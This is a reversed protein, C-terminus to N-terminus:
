DIATLDNREQNPITFVLCTSADVLDVAEFTGSFQLAIERCVWLGFGRPDNGSEATISAELAQANLKSGSNTVTFRLVQADAYLSAKVWGREGAAKAANLMLNLMVQRTPASLVRLTSVIEAQTSVTVRYREATPQVLLAVDDLDSLKLPRDDTHAHPLLAAVTNRIQQLGREILDVTKSRTAEADGHLRLTQTANLLGGLPNSIEHGVAATMRGVAAMREASLARQEAARRVQMEGLLQRVANAIRKVEPDADAPLSASLTKADTHGIAAICAAIQAVPRTMRRGLMWGVPSLLVVALLSGILAPQALAAWNPDFVNTDIEVFTFGLIQGDESSVPAILTVSSDSHEVLTRATIQEPAPLARSGLAGASGKGLLTAGTELRTPASAAVVQGAADLVAARAHGAQAGPLLAVTNKLLSFIRWTDDAAILPRAQAALLDMAVDVTALSARRQARASIQAAVVMVILATILVALSLGLPIQIRYPLRRLM